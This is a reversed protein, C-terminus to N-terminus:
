FLTISGEQLATEKREIGSLKSVALKQKFITFANIVDTLSKNKIEWKSLDNNMMIEVKGNLILNETKKFLEITEEIMKVSRNLDSISKETNKNTKKLESKFRNLMEKYPTTLNQFNKTINSRTTNMETIAAVNEHSSTELDQKLKTLTEIEKVIKNEGNLISKIKLKIRHLPYNLDDISDRLKTHKKYIDMKKILKFQQNLDGTIETIDSCVQSLTNQYKGFEEEKVYQFFDHTTGSFLIGPYHVLNEQFGATYFDVDECYDKIYEEIYDFHSDVSEVRSEFTFINQEIKAAIEELLPQSFNCIIEIFTLRDLEADTSDPPPLEDEKDFLITIHHVSQKYIDQHQVEQLIDMLLTRSMDGSYDMVDLMHKINSMSQIFVDCSNNLLKSSNVRKKILRDMSIMLQELSTSKRQSFRELEFLNSRLGRLKSLSAKLKNGTEEPLIYGQTNGFSSIILDTVELDVVEIFGKIGDISKEIRSFTRWITNIQKKYSTLNKTEDYFGGQGERFFWTMKEALASIEQGKDSKETLDSSIDKTSTILKNLSSILKVNQEGIDNYGSELISLIISINKKAEKNM